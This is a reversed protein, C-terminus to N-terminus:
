GGMGLVGMLWANIPKMIGSWMVIGILASVALVVLWKQVTTFATSRLLAYIGLPPFAQLSFIVKTRSNYWKVPQDQTQTETQNQDMHKNRAPPQDKSVGNIHGCESPRVYQVARSLCRSTYCIPLSVAIISSSFIVHGISREFLFLIGASPQVTHMLRYLDRGDTSIVFL